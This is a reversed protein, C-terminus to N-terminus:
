EVIFDTCVLGPVCAVCVEDSFLATTSDFLFDGQRLAYELTNAKAAAVNLWALTTDFTCQM